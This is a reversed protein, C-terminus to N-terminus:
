GVVPLSAPTLADLALHSLYGGIFGAVAGAALTCAVAAFMLLVRRGGDREVDLERQLREAQSRLWGQWRKLNKVAWFGAAGIPLLGHGISRHRPSTAPDIRDPMMAGVIGAMAGGITEVVRLHTPQGRAAYWATAGGAVCGVRRHIKGDSM